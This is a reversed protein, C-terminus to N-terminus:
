YLCARPRGIWACVCVTVCGCVRHVCKELKRKLEELGVGTGNRAQGLGLSISSLVKNYLELATMRDGVEDKGLAKVVDSCM